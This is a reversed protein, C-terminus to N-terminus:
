ETMCRNFMYVPGCHDTKRLNAMVHIEEYTLGLEHEDTQQLTHEESLPQLEATPTADLIAQLSNYSYRNCAWNLFLRLDIKSIGGVPNIDASSTDYKTIYGTLLEEINGSGLIILFGKKGLSWPLLQGAMYSTVMRIRAQLNQLAVDEYQSGGQSVYRPHKSGTLETFMDLYERCIEDINEEFHNSGIEEALNRARLKSEDTSNATSLYATHMINYILEKSSDPIKGLIRRLDEQLVELNYGQFVSLAEILKHCM